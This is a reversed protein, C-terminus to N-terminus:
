PAESSATAGVAVGLAEENEVTGFQRTWLETGNTDYKRVFADYGGVRTQGPLTGNTHGVIYAGTADVAVGYGADLGASGFQRTWLETGNVDYKRVFADLGGASTQGPLARGTSGVVYVGTADVAAGRADDNDASGFERTWLETGNTDYKRVFADFNFGVVGASAQGPLAGNTYGVVYVGTSDVDVHRASDLTATGFQRIWQITQARALNPLAVVVLLAFFYVWIRSQQRHLNAISVM